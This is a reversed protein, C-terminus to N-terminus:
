LISILVQSCLPNFGSLSLITPQYSEQKVRESLNHVEAARSRKSGRVCTAKKADVSETEVDQGYFLYTLGIALMFLVILM